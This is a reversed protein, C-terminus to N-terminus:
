ALMVQWVAAEAEALSIAMVGGGRITLAGTLHRPGSIGTLRRL